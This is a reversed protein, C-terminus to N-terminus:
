DQIENGKPNFRLVIMEPPNFIRINITHTGLGKSVVISKDGEVTLEGSYRPFLLAQPSIIGGIGPIRVIGGHLHGSLVLDAGWEKYQPFFVPNHALLIQYKRQDASGIRMQLDKQSLQYRSLKEYALEPIELGVVDAEVGGFDIKMKRNELLIVGSEVLASKYQPYVAGYKEPHERMRQEHNGNAYYVPCIAPLQTVFRQAPELSYGEKAVPMDGTIFIMDPRVNRIADVLVQNNKGYEHNHLDSLFVATKEEEMGSLKPSTIQYYITKFQKM